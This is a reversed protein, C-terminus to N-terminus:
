STCLNRLTDSPSICVVDTEAKPSEKRDLAERSRIRRLETSGLVNKLREDVSSRRRVRDRYLKIKLGTLVFSVASLMIYALLRLWDQVWGAFALICGAAGLFVFSGLLGYQAVITLSDDSISSGSETQVNNHLFVVFTFLFIIDLIFTFVAMSAGYWRAILFALAAQEPDSVCVSVLRATIPPLFQLPMTKVVWSLGTALEPPLTREFIGKARYYSYYIFGLEAFNFGMGKAMILMGDVTSGLNVDYDIALHAATEACFMIILSIMMTLISLNFSTVLTPRGSRSLTLTPKHQLCTIFVVFSALHAISLATMIISVSSYISIPM